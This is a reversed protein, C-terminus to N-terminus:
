SIRSDYADFAKAAIDRRFFAGEFHIQDVARYALNRAAELSHDLATVGLVRGGNTVLNGMSVETGAHFVKIGPIAEAAEIGTIARGKAYSGPYGGSALVVCVASKPSWNLKWEGLTGDVCAEMLDVLDNELRPLYIQTEPDGFRSNFEIVKPGNKTLIIGPYILGKYTIGELRCGKIWPDLISAAADQFAEESLFPTPSYTGMGGTNPGKDGDYAPKHDQSSPFALWQDGDCLAHISMELGDLREQLVVRAGAAGMSKGVMMSQIAVEAEPMSHCVIVGKGLALGDAKVAVNGDFMGAFEIAEDVRRCVRSQATPIGHRDMFHQSFGKSWEFQAAAKSPGWARFGRAELADVMGMALPDDPAVVTLDPRFRTALELMGEIDTAKVKECRVPVGSGQVVEGAMGGNGPACVIEHVRPSRAIKWTLAHERGGSGIILVRM